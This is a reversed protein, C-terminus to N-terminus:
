TSQPEETLKRLTDLKLMPGLATAYPSEEHETIHMIAEIEALSTWEDEIFEDCKHHLLWLLSGRENEYLLPRRLYVVRLAKRLLAPRVSTSRAITDCEEAFGLM